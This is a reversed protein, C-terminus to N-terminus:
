SPTAAAYDSIQKPSAYFLVKVNMAHFVNLLREIKRDLVDLNHRRLGLHFVIV